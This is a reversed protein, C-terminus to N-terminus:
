QSSIQRWATFALPLALVLMLGVSGLSVLISRLTACYVEVPLTFLSAAGAADKQWVFHAYRRALDRIAELDALERVLEDTDRNTM